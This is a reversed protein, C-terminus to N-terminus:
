SSRATRDHSKWIKAAEAIEEADLAEFAEALPREFHVEGDMAEFNITLVGDDM